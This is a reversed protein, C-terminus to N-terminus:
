ATVLKRGHSRHSLADAIDSAELQGAIKVTVPTRGADTTAPAIPDREVFEAQASRPLCPRSSRWSGFDPYGGHDDRKCADGGAGYEGRHAPAMTSRWHGVCVTAMALM